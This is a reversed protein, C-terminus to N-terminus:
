SHKTPIFVHSFWMGVESQRARLEGVFGSCNMKKYFICDLICYIYSILNHNIYIYVYIYVCMYIYIYIYVCSIRNVMWVLLLIM